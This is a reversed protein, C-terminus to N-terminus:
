RIDSLPRMKEILNELLNEEEKEGSFHNIVTYDWPNKLFSKSRKKKDLGLVYSESSKNLPMKFIRVNNPTESYTEAVVAQKIKGCINMYVIIDGQKM